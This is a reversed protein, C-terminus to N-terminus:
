WSSKRGCDGSVKNFQRAFRCREGPEALIGSFNAGFISPERLKAGFAEDMVQSYAPQKHEFRANEAANESRAGGTHYTCSEHPIARRKFRASAKAMPVLGREKQWDSPGLVLGRGCASIM